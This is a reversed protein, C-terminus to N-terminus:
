KCVQWLRAYVLYSVEVVVLVCKGCRSSGKGAEAVWVCMIDYVEEVHAECEFMDSQRVILGSSETKIGPHSEQQKETYKQQATDEVHIDLCVM